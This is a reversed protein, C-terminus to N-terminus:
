RRRLGAVVAFRGTRGREGRHSFFLHTRCAPCIASVEVNSEQLGARLLQTRNAAWLDFHVRDRMTLASSELGSSRIVEIVDPGVEYCCPGVAPGIAAVIQRPDSGFVRVMSDVAKGVIGGVTGKWGAHVLGLAVRVPDYLVIPVCDAFTMLLFLDECATILADADPIADDWSLAGRGRDSEGVVVVNVGHIQQAAVASDLRVDLAACIRARNRLVNDPDDGVRFSVNLSSFPPPSTGGHRGAASAVVNDYKSLCEPQYLTVGLSYRTIM